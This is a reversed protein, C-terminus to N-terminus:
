LAEAAAVLNARAAGYTVISAMGERRPGPIGTEVVVLDPRLAAAAAVTEEQWAHRAADRVVLVLRRGEHVALLAALDRPAERLRVEVADPLVEALGHM